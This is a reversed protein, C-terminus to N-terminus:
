SGGLLLEFIVTLLNAVIVPLKLYQVAQLLGIVQVRLPRESPDYGMNSVIDLGHKAM